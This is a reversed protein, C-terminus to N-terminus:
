MQGRGGGGVITHFSTSIRKFGISFVEGKKRNADSLDDGRNRIQTRVFDIESAPLDIQILDAEINSKEIAFGFLAKFLM